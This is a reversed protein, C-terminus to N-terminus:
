KGGVESPTCSVHYAGMGKRARMAARRESTQTSTRPMRLFGRGEVQRCSSFMTLLSRYTLQTAFCTPICAGILSVLASGIGFFGGLLDLPGLEWSPAADADLVQSSASLPSSVPGRTITTAQTAKTRSPARLTSKRGRSLHVNGMM